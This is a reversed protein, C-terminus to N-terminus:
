LDKAYAFFYIEKQATLAASKDHNIASDEYKSMDLIASNTGSVNKVSIKVQLVVAPTRETSDTLSSCLIYSSLKVYIVFYLRLYLFLVYIYM